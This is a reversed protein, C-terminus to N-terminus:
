PLQWAVITGKFPFSSDGASDTSYLFDGLLKCFKNQKQSDLILKGTAKGSANILEFSYVATQPTLQTIDMPISGIDFLCTVKNGSSEVLYQIMLNEWFRRGCDGPKILLGNDKFDPCDKEKGM